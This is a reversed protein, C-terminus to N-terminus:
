LNYVPFGDGVWHMHNNQYAGLFKKM